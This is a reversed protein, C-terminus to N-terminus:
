RRFITRRVGGELFQAFATVGIINRKMQGGNERVGGFFQGGDEGKWFIASFAMGLYNGMGFIPRWRWKWFTECIGNRLLKWLCNWILKVALPVLGNRGCIAPGCFAYYAEMGEKRKTALKLNVAPWPWLKEM